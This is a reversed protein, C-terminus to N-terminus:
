FFSTLSKVLRSFRQNDLNSFDEEGQSYPVSYTIEKEKPTPADRKTLWWGKDASNFNAFTFGEDPSMYLDIDSNKDLDHFDYREQYQHNFQSFLDKIKVM